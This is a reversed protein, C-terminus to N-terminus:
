QRVIKTEARQWQIIRMDGLTGDINVEHNSFRSIAAGQDVDWRTLVEGGSDGLSVAPVNEGRERPVYLEFTTIGTIVVFEDQAVDLKSNTSVEIAGASGFSIRRTDFWTDGQEHTGIGGDASFVQTFVDGLMNPRFFGFLEPTVGETSGLAAIFEDMGAFDAANGEADVNFIFTTRSLPAELTALGEADEDPEMDFSVATAGEPDEYRTSFSTFRAAVRASGDEGVDLVELDVTASVESKYTAPDADESARQETSWKQDISYTLERGEILGTNIEIEEGFSTTGIALVGLAVGATCIRNM